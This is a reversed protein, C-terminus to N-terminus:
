KKSIKGNQFNYEFVTDSKEHKAQLTFPNDQDNPNDTSGSIISICVGDSVSYNEIDMDSEVGDNRISQGLEGVCKKNLKYHFDQYEAFVMLDHKATIDYASKSTIHLFIGGALFFLCIVALVIALEFSSFGKEGLIIEKRFLFKQLNKKIKKQPKLMIHRKRRCSLLAIYIFILFVKGRNRESYLFLCEFVLLVISLTIVCYVNTLYFVSM